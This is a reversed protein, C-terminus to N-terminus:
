TAGEVACSTETSIVATHEFGFGTPRMYTPTRSPVERSPRPYPAKMYRSVMM